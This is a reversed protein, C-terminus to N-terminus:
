DKSKKDLTKDTEKTLKGANLKEEYIIKTNLMYKYYQFYIRYGNYLENIDTYDMLNNDDIFSKFITRAILDNDSDNYEIFLYYCKDFIEKDYLIDFGQKGYITKLSYFENIKPGFIEQLKRNMTIAKKRVSGGNTMIGFLANSFDNKITVLDSYYDNLLKTSCLVFDQHLDLSYLMYMLDYIVKTYSINLHNHDTTFEIIESYYSSFGELQEVNIGKMVEIIFKSFHKYSKGNTKTLYTHILELHNM